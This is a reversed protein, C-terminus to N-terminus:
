NDFKIRKSKLWEDFDKGVIKEGTVGKSAFSALFLITKNMVTPQLIQMDNKQFFEKIGAGAMGTDTFGGPCIVNVMIGLDRLEEAMIETMAEAGAKSPGYPLQGKRTMTNTSTSVYVLSGHGNKVMLPVFKSSVIFYGIFNTEVVAKVSSVPIDYFRHDPALNEMGPANSGIGANNVLMDLHDFHQEFWAAAKIVSEEDSVDLPVAHVDFGESSLQEYAKDLKTGSRAGIIVTAGHSLLEKAMEYGMGSSAGTILATYGKLDISM